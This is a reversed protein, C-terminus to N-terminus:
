DSRPLRKWPATGESLHRFTDGVIAADQLTEFPREVGDSEIFDAAANLSNEMPSDADHNASKPDRRKNRAAKDDLHNLTCALCDDNGGASAAVHCPTRRARGIGPPDMATVDTMRRIQRAGAAANAKPKDRSSKSALRCSASTPDEGLTEARLDYSSATPTGAAQLHDHMMQPERQTATRGLAEGATKITGTPL